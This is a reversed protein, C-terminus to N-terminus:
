REESERATTAGKDRLYEVVKDNGVLVAFDLPTKGFFEEGLRNGVCDHLIDEGCRAGLDAGAELLVRTTGFFDGDYNMDSPFREKLREDFTRRDEPGLPMALVGAALHLPTIDGSSRANVDAGGAILIEASRPWGMFGAFALPTYGDVTRADIEAGAKLLVGLATERGELAAQHLPAVGDRNRANVDAGAEILRRTSDVDANSWLHLPTDGGADRANVDSGASLLIELLETEGDRGSALLGAMALPTMGENDRANVNAGSSLLLRVLALREPSPNKNSFYAALHLPTAGSLDAADVDASAALLAEVVQLHAAAVHPHLLNGGRPNGANVDAGAEILRRARQGDDEALDYLDATADKFGLPLDIGVAVAQGKDEAGRSQGTVSAVAVAAALLLVGLVIFSEFFMGRKKLDSRERRTSVVM